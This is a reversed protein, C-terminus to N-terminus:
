KVIRLAHTQRLKRWLAKIIVETVGREDLRKIKSSFRCSELLKSNGSWINFERQIYEGLNPYLSALESESMNAMTAKDKLPLHKTLADVAEGLSEPIKPIRVDPNLRTGTNDSITGLYVVSELIDRTVQYILPDKSARPGAVNLIDISNERIWMAVKQAADFAPVQNLDVHLYPRGHAEALVRTYKSGGALRGHSLILTGDSELVNKETREPYDPTPMEKLDYKGALPGEETLRGKPVWGGHPIDMQIAADLAAQDAGTQGGSIIKKIM